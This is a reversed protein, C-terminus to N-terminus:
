RTESYARTTPGPLARAFSVMFCSSVWPFWPVQESKAASKASAQEPPLELPPEPLSPAPVLSLGLEFPEATFPLPPTEEAEDSDSPLVFVV